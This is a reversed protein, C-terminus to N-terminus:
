PQVEGWAEAIKALEAERDEPALAMLQVQIITPLRAMLHEQQKNMTRTM